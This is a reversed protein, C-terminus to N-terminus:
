KGICFQRFVSDLIDEVGVTGTIRGIARLALRVDESRLEPLPAVIASQLRAAAELLAARHRARTLPPPGEAQTLARAHGALANRLRDMGEGTLASIALCDDGAAAHLDVKNIVHLVRGGCVADDTGQMTSADRLSIILDAEAARARARRVGEAEVIDDTDRLGATDLLTVPAGGLEVRAELVDRTTGPLSSVIAVDRQALANILTSKGVNPPGTVAFVLGERLREGRHGDDLHARIEDHLAALDARATAETEPPLDEDPFDILAEERALLGTLRGAWGRYLAGLSGDMQRLAQSRQAATEAEVLDAIAEAEVLDMRGNLFARRTFEGAEAPRAGLAVLADAVGAAVARGGHLHLEASDEGTYSGPGPLWLVLARDLLTGDVHRLARLSARREPPVNGCLTALLAHSGPGSVRLVTVAARGAGSAVAFITDM